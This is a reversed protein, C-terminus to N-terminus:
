ATTNNENRNNYAAILEAVKRQAKNLEKKLKHIYKHDAKTSPRLNDVRNNLPDGDLHHIETIDCWNDIDYFEAFAEVLVWSLQKRHRVGDLDYIGVALRKPSTTGDENRKRKGTSYPTLIKNARASFIEGTTCFLYLPYAKCSIWREETNNWDESVRTEIFNKMNLLYRDFRKAAREIQKVQDQRQDNNTM